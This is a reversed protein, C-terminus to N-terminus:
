SGSVTHFLKSVTATSSTQVLGHQGNSVFGDPPIQLNLSRLGKRPSVSPEIIHEKATESIKVSKTTPSMLSGSNYKKMSSRRPLLPVGSSSSIPPSISDEVRFAAATAKEVQNEILSRMEEYCLVESTTIARQASIYKSLGTCVSKLAPDSAMKQVNVESLGQESLFRDVDLNIMERENKM